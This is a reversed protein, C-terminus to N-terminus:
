NATLTRYFKLLGALLRLTIYYSLYIIVDWVVLYGNRIVYFVYVYAYM